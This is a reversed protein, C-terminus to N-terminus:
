ISSSEGHLSQRERDREEDSEPRKRRRRRDVDGSGDVAEPVRDDNRVAGVHGKAELNGRIAGIGLAEEEFAIPLDSRGRSAKEIPRQREIVVSSRFSSPPSSM